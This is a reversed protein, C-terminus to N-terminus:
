ARPELERDKTREPRPEGNYVRRCRERCFGVAQHQNGNPRVWEVPWRGRRGCALCVVDREMGSM